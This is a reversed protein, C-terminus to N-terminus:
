LVKLFGEHCELLSIKLVTLLKLEAHVKALILFLQFVTKAEKKEM